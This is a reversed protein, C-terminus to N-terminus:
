DHACYKSAYFLLKFPCVFNLKTQQKKVLQHYNIKKCNSNLYNKNIFNFLFPNLLTLQKVYLFFIKIDTVWIM